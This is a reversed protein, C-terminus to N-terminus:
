VDCDDISDAGALIANVLTMVKRGPRAAGPRRGLGVSKDLLSELGLRGALTAPLILGAEAVARDDDFVVALGDIRGASRKEPVGLATVM